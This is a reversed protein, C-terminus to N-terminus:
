ERFVCLCYRSSNMVIHRPGSYERPLQKLYAVGVKLPRNRDEVAQVTKLRKLRKLLAANM